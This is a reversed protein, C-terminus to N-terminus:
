YYDDGVKKFSGFVTTTSAEPVITVYSDWRDPNPESYYPPKSTFNYLNSYGVTKGDEDILLLQATFSNGASFDGFSVRYYAGMFWEDAYTKEPHFKLQMDYEVNLEALEPLNSLDMYDGSVDFYADPTLNAYQEQSGTNDKVGVWFPFSSSLTMKSNEEAGGEAESGLLPLAIFSKSWYPNTKSFFAKDFNVKYGSNEERCITEILKSVKIAPRQKYSRLDRMQWETYDKELSALAYGDKTTYTVADETKSIPFTEGDAAIM